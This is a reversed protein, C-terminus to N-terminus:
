NMAKTICGFPRNLISSIFRCTPCPRKSWQHPDEELAQLVAEIVLSAAAKVVQEADKDTM